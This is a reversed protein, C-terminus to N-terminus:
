SASPLGLYAPHIKAVYEGTRHGLFRRFRCGPGPEATSPRAPPGNYARSPSTYHPWGNTQLTKREGHRGIDNIYSAKPTKSQTECTPSMGAGHSCFATDLRPLVKAFLFRFSQLCFVESCLGLSVGHPM